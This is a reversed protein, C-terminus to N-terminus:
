KEGKYIWVKVGRKSADDLTADWLRFWDDSLYPTALGPRPHVFAMNVNQRNLDALTSRVQDETLLDNWVWLPSTAFDTGPNAFRSRIEEVSPSEAVNLQSDTPLYNPSSNVHFLLQDVNQTAEQTYADTACLITLASFTGLVLTLVKHYPTYYNSM